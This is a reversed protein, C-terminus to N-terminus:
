SNPPTDFHGVPEGGDGLNLFYLKRSIQNYTRFQPRWHSVLAYIAIERAEAVAIDIESQILDLLVPNLKQEERSLWIFDYKMLKEIARDQWKNERQM